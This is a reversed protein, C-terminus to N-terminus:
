WRFVTNRSRCCRPTSDTMRRIPTAMNSINFDRCVQIAPIKQERVLRVAQLKLDDDFNRRRRPPTATTSM